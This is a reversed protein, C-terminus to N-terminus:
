VTCTLNFQFIGNSAINTASAVAPQPPMLALWVTEGADKKRGPIMFALEGVVLAGTANVSFDTVKATALYNKHTEWERQRFFDGAVDNFM